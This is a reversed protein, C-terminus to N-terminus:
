NLEMIEPHPGAHRAFQRSTKEDFGFFPYGKFKGLKLISEASKKSTGHFLLLNGNEDINKEHGMSKVFDLTLKRFYDSNDM